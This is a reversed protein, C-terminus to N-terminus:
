GGAATRLAAGKPQGITRLASAVLSQWLETRGAERHEAGGETTATGGRSEKRRRTAGKSAVATSIRRGWAFFLLVPWSRLPGPCPCAPALPSALSPLPASCIRLSPRRGETATRRRHQRASHRQVTPSLPALPWGILLFEVLPSNRSRIRHHANSGDVVVACSQPPRIATNHSAVSETNKTLHM